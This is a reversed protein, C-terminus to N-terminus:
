IGRLGDNAGIEVILIDPKDALTWDLRALAGTSTDGSVGANAVEAEIGRARLAAQLQATFGEPEPLGYGATLSDGFAAIRVPGARAPLPPVLLALILLLLALALLAPMRRRRNFVWRAPGYRRSNAHICPLKTGIDVTAEVAEGMTRSSSTWRLSSLAAPGTLMRRPMSRATPAPSVTLTTPGDPEPLDVIIIIMPPSSRGVEPVTRTAPCSSPARSSSRIARNRRSWTPM